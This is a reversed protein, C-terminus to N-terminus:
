KSSLTDGIILVKIKLAQIDRICTSWSWHRISFPPPPPPPHARSHAGVGLGFDDAETKRPPPPCFQCFWNIIGVEGWKFSEQTHYQDFEFNGTFHVSYWTKISVHTVSCIMGEYTCYYFVNLAEVAAPGKQKYGFILDIWEHLHSSM